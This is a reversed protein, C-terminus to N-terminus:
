HGKYKYRIVKTDEEVAEFGMFKALSHGKTNDVLVEAYLSWPIDAAWESFLTHAKRIAGKSLNVGHPLIIWALADESLFGLPVCGFVGVIAEADTVMNLNLSATALVLIEEHTLETDCTTIFEFPFDSAEHRLM